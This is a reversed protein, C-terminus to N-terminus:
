KQAELFGRIVFPAFEQDDTCWKRYEHFEREAGFRDEANKFFDELANDAEQMKPILDAWWDFDEQSMCTLDTEKDTELLGANMFDATWECGSKPDILTLARIERTEKILIEM